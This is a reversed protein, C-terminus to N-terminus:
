DYFGIRDILWEGTKGSDSLTSVKTSDQIQVNAASTEIFGGDAGNKGEAKLTGSVTTHWTQMDGLLIIEGKPM